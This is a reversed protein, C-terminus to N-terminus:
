VGVIWARRRSLLRLIQDLTVLGTVHGYTFAQSQLRELFACASEAAGRIWEM